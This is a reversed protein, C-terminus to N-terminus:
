EDGVLSADNYDDHEGAPVIGFEILVLVAAGAYNMLEGLCPTPQQPM